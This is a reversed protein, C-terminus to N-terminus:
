SSWGTAPVVLMVRNGAVIGAAALGTAVRTVEEDLAAYTLSRGGAEM